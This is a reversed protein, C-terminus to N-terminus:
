IITACMCYICFTSSFFQSEKAILYCKILNVAIINLTQHGMHAQFLRLIFGGQKRASHQLLRSFWALKNQQIQM